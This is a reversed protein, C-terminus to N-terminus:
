SSFLFLGRLRIFAKGFFERYAEESVWDILVEYTCVYYLLMFGLWLLNGVTLVAAAAGSKLPTLRHILVICLTLLVFVALFYLAMYPRAAKGYTRWYTDGLRNMVASLLYESCIFLAAMWGLSEVLLGAATYIAKKM